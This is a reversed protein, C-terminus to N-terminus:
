RLIVSTKKLSCKYSERENIGEEVIKRKKRKKQRAVYNEVNVWGSGWFSLTRAISKNYLAPPMRLLSVMAM